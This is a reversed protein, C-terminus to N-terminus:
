HDKSVSCQDLCAYSPPSIDIAQPYEQFTGVAVGAPEPYLVGSEVTDVAYGLCISPTIILPRSQRRIAIGARLVGEFRTRGHWM